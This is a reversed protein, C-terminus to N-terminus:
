IPTHIPRHLWQSNDINGSCVPPFQPTPLTTKEPIYRPARPTYHSVPHFLVCLSMCLRITLMCWSWMYIIRPNGALPLRGGAFAFGRCDNCHTWLTRLARTGDLNLEGSRIGESKPNVYNINEIRNLRHWFFFSMLLRLINQLRTKQFPFANVDVWSGFPMRLMRLMRLM